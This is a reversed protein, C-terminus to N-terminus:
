EEIIFRGVKRPSKPVQPPVNGGSGPVQIRANQPNIDVRANPDNNFNVPLEARRGANTQEQVYNAIDDRLKQNVQAMKAVKLEDSDFETPFIEAYKKEDELRLVGGEFLKGINQKVLKIHNNFMKVDRTGFLSQALDTDPLYGAYGKIPGTLGQGAGQLYKTLRQASDLATKAEAMYKIGSAGMGKQFDFGMSNLIPVLKTRMTPTLSEWLAPNQMVALAHAHLEGGGGGGGGTNRSPHEVSGWVENPNVTTYRALLARNAPTDKLKGSQFQEFLQEAKLRDAEARNRDTIAIDRKTQEFQEQPTIKRTAVDALQRFAPAESTTLGLPNDVSVPGLGTQVDQPQFGGATVNLRSMLEPARDRIRSLINGDLQDNPNLGAVASELIKRERDQKELEFQEKARAEQAQQMAMQAQQYEMLQKQRAADREQESIVQHTQVGQQLAAGLAGWIGSSM